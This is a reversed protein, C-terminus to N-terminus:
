WTSPSARAIFADDSARASPIRASSRKPYFLLRDNGRARLGHRLTTWCPTKTSGRTSRPATFPRRMAEGVRPAVDRVHGADGRARGATRPRGRRAEHRAHDDDDDHAPSAGADGREECPGGRDVDWLARPGRRGVENLGVFRVYTYFATDEVGKAMVPGTLQQFRMALEVRDQQHQPGGSKRDFLLAHDKLFAFVSPNLEPNRWRALRIARADRDERRKCRAVRGTARVHSLGSFAAITEGLARRLTALTFDRSRRDRMAIRELRLALMTLESALSSRLVTRKAEFVHEAFTRGDGTLERYLKTFPEEGRPDVLLGNVVTLWDYGTTGEIPWAEPLAEGHSLIKEAGIWIPGVRARLKEFYRAPDYLGDVHDLRIGELRKQAILEFLLQHMDDFVADDEMRIAALDNVEFFRRYNIEDSAVRWYALRYNQEVLLADLDDFSRADGATGNM